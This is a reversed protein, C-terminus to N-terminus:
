HHIYHNMKKWWWDQQGITPSSTLDNSDAASYARGGQVELGRGKMEEGDGDRLTQSEM